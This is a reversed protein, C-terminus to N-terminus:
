GPTSVRAQIRRCDRLAHLKGFTRRLKLSAPNCAPFLPQHITRAIREAHLVESRSFKCARRPQFHASLKGRSHTVSGLLRTPHALQQLRKAWWRLVHDFSLLWTPLITPLSNGVRCPQVIALAKTRRSIRPKLQGKAIFRIVGLIPIRHNAHSMSSTASYPPCTASPTKGVM